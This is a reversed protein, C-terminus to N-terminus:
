CAKGGHRHARTANYAMKVVIAQELDINYLGAIDALRVVADALEFAFGEPKGNEGIWPDVKGHRYCEVAEALESVVMMCLTPIRHAGYDVQRGASEHWGKGVAMGHAERVLESIEM